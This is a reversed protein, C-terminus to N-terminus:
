QANLALYSSYYHSGQKSLVWNSGQLSVKRLFSEQFIYLHRFDIFWLSNTKDERPVRWRFTVAKHTSSLNELGLLLSNLYFVCFTYWRKFCLFSDPLFLCHSGPFLSTPHSCFCKLPIYQYGPLYLREIFIHTYASHIHTYPIYTYTCIHASYM